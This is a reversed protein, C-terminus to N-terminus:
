YKCLGRDVDLGKRKGYWLELRTDPGICFHDEITGDTSPLQVSSFNPPLDKVYYLSGSVPFQLSSLKKELEVIQDILISIAKESLQFWIDGLNTGRVLEMFIYETSAANNLTTSYTDIKPIPLDQRRLFDMTAVENAVVLSRPETALYPIRGVFQFGDSMTILFTRNFGGEAMKEFHTVDDASILLSPRLGCSSLYM